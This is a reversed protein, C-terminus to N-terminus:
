LMRGGEGGGGGCVRLVCVEGESGVKDGTIETLQDLFAPFKLFPPMVAARKPDGRCQQIWAVETLMFEGFRRGLVLKVDSLLSTVYQWSESSSGSSNSNGNLSLSSVGVGRGGGGTESSSSSSSSSHSHSAVVWLLMHTAVLVAAIDMGAIHGDHGAGAGAGLTVLKLVRERFSGFLEGLLDLLQPRSSSSSSSAAPQKSSDDTDSPHLM